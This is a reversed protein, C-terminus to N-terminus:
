RKEEFVSLKCKALGRKGEDEELLQLDNQAKFM